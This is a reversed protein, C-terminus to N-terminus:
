LMLANCFAIIPLISLIYFTYHFVIPNHSVFINVGLTSSILSLCFASIGIGISSAFQRSTIDFSTAISIKDQPMDIYNLAGCSAGLLIWCAGYLFEVIAIFIESTSSDFFSFIILGIFTGTAGFLMVKKFGFKDLTKSIMIRSVIYGVPIALVLLGAREPNMGFNFQYMLPLLFSVSATLAYITFNINYGIRFTKIKLLSLDFIPHKSIFCHAILLILVVCGFLGVMLNMNQTIIEDHHLMDIFFTIPSLSAIVLAFGLWDFKRVINPKYEEICLTAIYLIILGIPINIYFIWHWTLRESIVGGLFPGFVLGLLAPSFIMSQVRVLDKAPFLRILIIRAIPTMFAGGMGQIFRFITLATISQAVACLLSAIVFLFLAYLFVKKTGFKDACFGSIPIFITLSLLYSTVAFKLLLPNIHLDRAISPIATNVISSDLFEMFLAISVIIPIIIKKPCSQTINKM